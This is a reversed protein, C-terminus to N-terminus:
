FRYYKYLISATNFINDRQSWSEKRYRTIIESLM